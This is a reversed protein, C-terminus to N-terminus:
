STAKRRGAPRPSSTTASSRCCRSRWRASAAPRAPSSWRAAIRARHRATRAGHGCADRHLRRHRDGHRRAADARGAAAGALRGQRPRAPCLRRSADRRRGLRQARGQRRDRFRSAVSAIVTGAFDIGPVLPFRRVVPAKGTIALGDKYNVTTYEVSVTVDGEMLDAESLETIGVSQKKDADRSISSRRSIQRVDTARGTVQRVRQPSHPPAGGGTLRRSHRAQKAFQALGAIGRPHGARRRRHDARRRPQVRRVVLGAHPVPHLRDCPRLRARDIINGLAGGVILAFGIRAICQGPATRAALYLVFLIVAASIAILGLDGVSAFMSFAVGTNYTRYLALFPLVDVKEQMPLRTEVLHKIWQDAVVALATVAAYSLLSRLKM